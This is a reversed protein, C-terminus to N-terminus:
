EKNESIDGRLQMQLIAGNDRLWKRHIRYEPMVSEVVDWFAKSHNMEQLHALEHIVVYDLVMPPALMLRWSFSLTGGSSCSGWRTKQDRIIVREYTGGMQMQYHAVREPIYKKAANRYRKTLAAAQGPTCALRKKWEELENKRRLQKEYKETIWKEKDRLFSDIFSESAQLPIKLIVAGNEDIELGYSRRRSQKVTCPIKVRDYEIVIKEPSDKWM